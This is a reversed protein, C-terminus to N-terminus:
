GGMGGLQIRAMKPFRGKSDEKWFGYNIVITNTIEIGSKNPYSDTTVLKGDKRLMLIRDTYNSIAFNTRDEYNSPKDDLRSINFYLWDLSNPIPELM